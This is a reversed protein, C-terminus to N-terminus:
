TKGMAEDMKEEDDNPTLGIYRILDTLSDQKLLGQVVKLRGTKRLPPYGEVTAKV